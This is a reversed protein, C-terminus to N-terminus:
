LAEKPPSTSHTRLFESYQVLNKLATVARTPTPYSPIDVSLLDNQFNKYTIFHDLLEWSRPLICLLPKNNRAKDIGQAYTEGIDPVNFTINLGPFREVQFVALITDVNPDKALAGVVKEYVEPNFGYAGLDIPNDFITNIHPVLATLAEQTSAELDAVHFGSSECIDTIEVAIGGGTNIIAVNRGAPLNDKLHQLGLITDTMAEFREVLLGGAQKMLASFIDHSVAIAGTHSQAAVRGKPTRGAKLIVVPKKPTIERMLSFFEAGDYISELYAAIIHTKADEKFYGLLENVSIDIANGLSVTTRLNFGRSISTWVFKRAIGGSQSILAVHGPDVIPQDKFYGL